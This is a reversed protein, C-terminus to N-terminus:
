GECVTHSEEPLQTTQIEHPTKKKFETAPSRHEGPKIQGSNGRTLNNLRMAKIGKSNRYEIFEPSKRLGLNAAKRTVSRESMGFFEALDCNRKIPFLRTLDQLMQPSWYLRVGKNRQVRQGYENYSLKKTPDLKMRYIRNVVASPSRGIRKALEDLPITGYLIRLKELEDKGWTDIKGSLGLMAVRYHVGAYTRGLEKAMQRYTKTEHNDKIYQDEEPTYQKKM